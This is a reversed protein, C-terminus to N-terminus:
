LGAGGPEMVEAMKELMAAEQRGPADRSLAMHKDVESRLNVPMLQHLAHEIRQLLGPQKPQNGKRLHKIKDQDKNSM